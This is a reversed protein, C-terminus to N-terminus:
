STEILSEYHNILENAIQDSDFHNLIHHRANKGIRHYMDEKSILEAITDLFQQASDAILINKRDEANSGEAGLTTSVITRGLAMAEMIKVRMGSGSFLPVVMLDNDLVFQKAHEVEGLINVGKYQLSGFWDPINRGAINFELYPFQDIIKSWVHDLFWLLGEQNPTWDLSGLHYLSQIPRNSKNPEMSSIDMGIPMVRGPITSGMKQFEVLDTKSVPILTDYKNLSNYEFRKMRNALISLYWGKLGKENSALGNWIQHEINHSRMAILANSLSRITNIYPVLYLGELQVVDFEKEGLVERLQDHVLNSHFREINYSKRSFLNFLADMRNVDTNLEVSHFRAMMSIHPPLLRMDFYHKNTNIAVVSVEHGLKYFGRIMNMIAITEGDRLPYPFKKCVILINM